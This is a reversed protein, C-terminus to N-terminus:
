PKSDAEGLDVPLVPAPEWIRLCQAEVEDENLLVFTHERLEITHTALLARFARHDAQGFSFPKLGSLGESAVHVGLRCDRCVLYFEVSM